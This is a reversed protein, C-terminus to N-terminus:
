QRTKWAKLVSTKMTTARMLSREEDGALRKDAQPMKRNELFNDM